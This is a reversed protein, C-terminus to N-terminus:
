EGKLEFEAGIKNMLDYFGPFSVDACEANSIRMEGDVALGLVSMAMAIRHDDYSSVDAGHLPLGGTIWAHNEDSRCEGGCKKLHEEMVQIRDTEKGRVHAINSFKTTGEALAAAVALVPYADPIMNMDIETAHLKQDGKVFLKHGEPDKKINAGMRCLVDVVTKDGQADDFDVGDIEVEGGSVLAAVLPFCVGSWDSAVLCECHHYKQGGKITYHSYEENDRHAEVGFKKLWDITLDVYGAEKPDSCEIVVEEGEPLLAAPVLIGSVHQSITGKIKATGGHLPGHVYVPPCGTGPRTEECVAGLDTVGKIEDRWVRRRIQEDGNIVVAGDKLLTGIGMVFSTTTGSNMTNVIDDPVKPNGDVGYITWTNEEENMEVKAGFAKAAEVAALGDRSPLPNHIVTKGDALMGMIVARITQSKSGPVAIKGNLAHKRSYVFSM